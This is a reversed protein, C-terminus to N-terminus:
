IGININSISLYLIAYNCMYNERSLTYQLSFLIRFAIGSITNTPDDNQDSLDKRRGALKLQQILLVTSHQLSLNHPLIGGGDYPKTDETRRCLPNHSDFAFFAKSGKLM